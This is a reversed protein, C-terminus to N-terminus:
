IFSLVSSQEQAEANIQVDAALLRDTIEAGKPIVTVFESGDRARVYVKEGDILVSEVDGREVKNMFSSFNDTRTAMSSQGSTFMNFLAVILIFLIVWFAINRSNGM